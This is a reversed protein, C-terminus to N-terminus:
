DNEIEMKMPYCRVPESNMKVTIESGDETFGAKKYFKKRNFNIRTNDIKGKSETV